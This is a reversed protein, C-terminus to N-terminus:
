TLNLCKRPRTSLGPCALPGLAAAVHRVNLIRTCFQYPAPPPDLFRERPLLGCIHKPKKGCIKLINLDYIKKRKKSYLLIYINLSLFSLQPNKFKFKLLRKLVNNLSFRRKLNFHKFSSGEQLKHANLRGHVSNYYYIQGNIPSTGVPACQCM